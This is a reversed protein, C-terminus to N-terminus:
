GTTARIKWTGDGGVVVSFVSLERAYLWAEFFYAFTAEVKGHM